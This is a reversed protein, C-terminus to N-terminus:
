TGLAKDKLSSVGAGNGAGARSDFGQRGARLTTVYNSKGTFYSSV